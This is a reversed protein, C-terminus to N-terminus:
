RYGMFQPPEDLGSATARVPAAPQYEYRNLGNLLTTLNDTHVLSGAAIDCKAQGIPWGYKRVPSGASIKRIALKHGRPILERVYLSAGGSGGPDGLPITEGPELQRLAVAVDDDPDIRHVAPTSHTQMIPYSPQRSFTACQLARGRSVPTM